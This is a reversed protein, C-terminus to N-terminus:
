YQVILQRYAVLKLTNWVRDQAVSGSVATGLPFVYHCFVFLPNYLRCARGIKQMHWLNEGFLSTNLCSANM